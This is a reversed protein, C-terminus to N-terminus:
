EGLLAQKLDESIPHSGIWQELLGQMLGPGSDEFLFKDNLFLRTSERPIYVFFLVDGENLSSFGKRFRYFAKGTVESEITERWVEPMQDPLMSTLIEIRIVVPFELTNISTILEDKSRKDNNPLYLACLYVDVLNYSRLGSSHHTWTLNNIKLNPPPSANASAINWGCLFFSLVTMIRFLYSISM